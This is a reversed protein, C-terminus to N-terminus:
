RDGLRADRHRREFPYTNGGHDVAALGCQIKIAAAAVGYVSLRRMWGDFADPDIVEHDGGCTSRLL